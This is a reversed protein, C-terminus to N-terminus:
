EGDGDDEDGVPEEDIAELLANIESIVPEMQQWLEYARTWADRLPGEPADTPKLGYDLAEIIGGEWEIKGNFNAATMPEITM